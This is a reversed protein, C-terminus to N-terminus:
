ENPDTSVIPRVEVSGGDHLIPCGKALEAAEDVDAARIFMYGNIIEKMEVYPGDTVINDPKVVRGTANLRKGTESFKDQAAIGGVWDQWQKARTQLQEPSPEFYQPDNRFILLFEEM